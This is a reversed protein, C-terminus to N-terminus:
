NSSNTFILSFFSPQRHQVENDMYKSLRQHDQFFSNSSHKKTIPVKETKNGEKNLYSVMGKEMNKGAGGPMVECKNETKRSKSSMTKIGREMGEINSSRQGNLKEM